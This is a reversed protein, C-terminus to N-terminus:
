WPFPIHSLLEETVKKALLQADEKTKNEPLLIMASDTDTMLNIYGEDRFRKRFYKIFQRGLSCCDKAATLNYINKFSPNSVAGYSSNIILKISYERPDKNKKMEMRLLYFKKLVNVLASQKKKCYYGEIKLLDDGHWKEEKNCCDCDSGFLNGMIFLNPYLSSADFLLIRGHAEEQNIMAVYGGGYSEDRISNDYEEKLGLEKCLSKYAFVATSCTLYSKNNISKRDVFEKFSEFYEELWIYMKKTIELDRKAYKVIIDQEEISWKDKNFLSYDFNKIKEENENVIGITKSIYDLSFEMLLDGLMGKNIKMSGARKKFISRLDINIKDVFNYEGMKSKYMGKFDGDAKDFGNNYLVHNDYKYNNFGILYRHNNILEKIKEPKTLYYYKDTKFSYAGFIRMTDTNSDAKNHLTSCEIDYILCDKYTNDM